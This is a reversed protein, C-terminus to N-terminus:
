SSPCGHSCIGADPETMPLSYHGAESWRPRRDNAMRPEFVPSQPMRAATNKPIGRPTGRELKVLVFLRCGSRWMISENAAM